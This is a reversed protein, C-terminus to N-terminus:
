SEVVRRGGFDRWWGAPGKLYLAPVGDRQMGPQIDAGNDTRSREGTHLLLSCSRSRIGREALAGRENLCAAPGANTRERNARDTPETLQSPWNARDIPGTLQGVPPEM